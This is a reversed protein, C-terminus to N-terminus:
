CCRLRLRRSGAPQPPEWPSVVQVIGATMVLAVAGYPWPQNWVILPVLGWFGAALLPLFSFRSSRRPDALRWWRLAFFTLAFYIVYAAGEALGTGAPLLSIGILDEHVEPGPEGPVKPVWGNVWLAGVGGV